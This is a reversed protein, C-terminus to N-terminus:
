ALGLFADTRGNRVYKQYSKTPMHKGSLDISFDHAVSACVCKKPQAQASSWPGFLVMWHLSLWPLAIPMVYTAARNDTGMARPEWDVPRPM